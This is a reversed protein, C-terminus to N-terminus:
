VGPISLSFTGGFSICFGPKRITGSDTKQFFKTLIQLDANKQCERKNLYCTSIIYFPMGKERTQYLSSIWFCVTAMIPISDIIGRCRRLCIDSIDISVLVSRIYGNFVTINCQYHLRNLIHTLYGKKMISVSLM